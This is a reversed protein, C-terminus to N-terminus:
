VADYRSGAAAAAAAAAAERNSSYKACEEGQGAGLKKAATQLECM